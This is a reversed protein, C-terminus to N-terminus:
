VFGKVLTVCRPGCGEACTVSKQKKAATFMNEWGEKKYM